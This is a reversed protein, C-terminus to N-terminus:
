GMYLGVICGGCGWMGIGFAFVLGASSVVLWLVRSRVLGPYRLVHCCGLLNLVM